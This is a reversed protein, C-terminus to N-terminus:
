FDALREHALRKRGFKGNRGVPRYHAKGHAAGVAFRPRRVRIERTLLRSDLAARCVPRDAVWMRRITTHSLGTQVRQKFSRRSPFPECSSSMCLGVGYRRQQLSFVFGCTQPGPAFQGFRFVNQPLRLSVRGKAGWRQERVEPLINSRIHEIFYRLRSDNPVCDIGFVAFHSKVRQRPSTGSHLSGRVTPM